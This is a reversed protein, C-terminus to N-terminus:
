MRFREKYYSNTVLYGIAKNNQLFPKKMLFLTRKANAKDHVPTGSM